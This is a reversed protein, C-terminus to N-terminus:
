SHVGPRELSGPRRPTGQRALAEASVPVANDAPEVRSGRRIAYVRTLEAGFLFIQASYYFWVLILVLSGAAGYASSVGSRGLYLGLLYKGVSFLVATMLAGAWVDSWAIRADPLYKFLLAFLLTVVALSALNNVLMWLWAGGPVAAPTLYRAVAALVASVVLSVLLLFGTGLVMTYPVFRERLVDLWTRDPKTEVKWVTNLADQLQGFVGGAGILLTVVGVVTAWVGTGDRHTHAIVDEIAAAAAPGVTDRVEVSVQGRAAAEGFALGAVAVAIIVLPAVSFISYYALAAGLRPAKDATWEHFADRLLGYLDRATM